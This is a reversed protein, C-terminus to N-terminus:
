ARNIKRALMGLGILSGLLVAGGVVKQTPSLEAASAPVKKPQRVSNKPDKEVRRRTDEVIDAVASGGAGQDAIEQLAYGESEMVSALDKNFSRLVFEEFDVPEVGILNAVKPAGLLSWAHLRDQPDMACFADFKAAAAEGFGALIIARNRESCLADPAFDNSVMDVEAAELEGEQNQFTLYVCAVLEEVPYEPFAVTNFATLADVIDELDPSIKLSDKLSEITELLVFFIEHSELSQMPFVRSLAARTFDYMAERSEPMPPGVLEDEEDSAPTEELDLVSLVTIMDDTDGSTREGNAWAELSLLVSDQVALDANDLVDPLLLRCTYENVEGLSSIEDTLALWEQDFGANLIIQPVYMPDFGSTPTSGLASPNPFLPTYHKM